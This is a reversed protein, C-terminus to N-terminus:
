LRGPDRNWWGCRGHGGDVSCNWRLIGWETGSEWGNWTAFRPGDVWAYFWWRGTSSHPSVPPRRGLNMLSYGLDIGGWPIREKRRNSWPLWLAALLLRIIDNSYGGIWGTWGRMVEWGMGEVQQQAIFSCWLERRTRAGLGSRYEEHRLLKKKKETPTAKAVFFGELHKMNEWSCDGM